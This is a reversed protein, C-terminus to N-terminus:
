GAARRKGRGSLVRLILAMIHHHDRRGATLARQASPSAATTIERLGRLRMCWLKAQPMAANDMM